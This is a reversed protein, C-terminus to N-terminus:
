LYCISAKGTKGTSGDSWASKSSTSNGVQLLTNQDSNKQQQRIEDSLDIVELNGDQQIAEVEDVSLIPTQEANLHVGSTEKNLNGNNTCESSFDDKSNNKLLLNSTSNQNIKSSSIKQQELNTPSMIVTTNDINSSDFGTAKSITTTTNKLDKQASNEVAQIIPINKTSPPGSLTITEGVNNLKPAQSITITSGSSNPLVGSVEQKSLTVTDSAKPPLSSPFGPKNTPDQVILNSLTITEGAAKTNSPIPSKVYKEAEQQNNKSTVAITENVTKVKSSSQPKVITETGQDSPTPLTVTPMQTGILDFQHLNSIIQTKGENAWAKRQFPEQQNLPLIPECIKTASIFIFVNFNPTM